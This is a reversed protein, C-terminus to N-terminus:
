RELLFSPHGSRQGKLIARDLAKLEGKYRLLDTSLPTIDPSM